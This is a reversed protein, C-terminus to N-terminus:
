RPEICHAPQLQGWSLFIATVRPVFPSVSVRDSETNTGLTVMAECMKHKVVLKAVRVKAYEEADLEHAEPIHEGAYKGIKKMAEKEETKEEVDYSNTINVLMNALGFQVTPDGDSCLQRVVKCIKKDGVIM